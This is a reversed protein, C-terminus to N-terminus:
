REHVEARVRTVSDARRRKFAFVSQPLAPGFGSKEKKKKTLHMMAKLNRFHCYSFSKSTFNHRIEAGVFSKRLPLFFYIPPSLFLASLPYLLVFVNGACIRKM